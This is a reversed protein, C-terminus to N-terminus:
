LGARDRAAAVVAQGLSIGGDNPPVQHHTLVAFGSDELGAVSQQVLLVNQFVGGSLAVTNLSHRDRLVTCVDVILRAVGRHFRASIAAPSVGAARDALVARILDAANVTPVDADTIRAEYSGTENPDALQELEIAAQGEYTVEDRVDLL